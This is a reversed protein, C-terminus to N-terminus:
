KKGKHKKIVSMIDKLMDTNGGIKSIVIDGSKIGMKEAISEAAEKIMADVDEKPESGSTKLDIDMDKCIDAISMDESDKESFAFMKASEAKSMIAGVTKMTDLMKKLAVQAVALKCEDCDEEAVDNKYGNIIRATEFANYKLVVHGLRDTDRKRGM